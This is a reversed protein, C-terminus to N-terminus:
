IMLFINTCRCNYTYQMCKSNPHMMRTVWDLIPTVNFDAFSQM